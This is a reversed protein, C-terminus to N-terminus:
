FREGAPREEVVTESWTLRPAALPHDVVRVEM